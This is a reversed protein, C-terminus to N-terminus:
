KKIITVTKKQGKGRFLAKYSIYKEMPVILQASAAIGKLANKGVEKIQSSKIDIKKLKGCGAFARRGVSKVKAKVTVKKVFNLGRFADEGIRVIRYKVSKYTVNKRITVKASLQTYANLEVSKANLLTYVFGGEEFSDGKQLGNNGKNKKSKNVKKKTPSTTVVPVVTEKLIPSGSVIPTTEIPMQTQLGVDPSATEVPMQTQLGVDPSATEVPMQTQLGVDPSATEVPMQTQLGVDPSATEVPMQTQLGVDPSATEVPMQTQLGVDPSATEVPMQTQLGVDPSETAEPEETATVVIDGPNIATIEGTCDWECVFGNSQDINNDSLDNWAHPWITLRNEDGGIPSGNNPEGDMWCEYEWTEGTIWKWQGIVECFGGIWYYLDTENLTEIFAQEEASTVTALHGGAEECIAKAESWSLRDISIIQYTHEGYEKLVSTEEESAEGVVFSSCSIILAMTLVYILIKKM